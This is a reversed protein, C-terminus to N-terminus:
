LKLLKTILILILLTVQLLQWAADFLVIQSVENHKDISAMDKTHLYTIFDKGAFYIAFLQYYLLQLAFFMIALSCFTVIIKALYYPM